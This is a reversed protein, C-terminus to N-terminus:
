PPAEHSHLAAPCATDTSYSSWSPLPPEQGALLGALREGMEAHGIHSMHVQDVFWELGGGREKLLAPGDVLPAELESALLRMAERYEQLTEPPPVRPDIDMPAPLLVFATRAGAYCALLCMDILNARYDGLPVRCLVGSPDDGIDEASTIWRVRRARSFPALWRFLMRYTALHRLPGEIRSVHEVYATHAEEEYYVDSWINGVLIWSPQVDDQIAELFSLSQETTYGPVGGNVGVVNRHWADTLRRAAVSSFVEQEWVGTGFITSDGLSLLRVDGAAPPALEPGRMNLSNIRISVKGESVELKGEPLAWQRTDDPIMPVHTGVEERARATQAIFDDHIGPGPTPYTRERPTCLEVIHAAGEVFGLALGM